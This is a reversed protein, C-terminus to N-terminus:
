SPIFQCRYQVVWHWGLEPTRGSRSPKKNSNGGSVLVSALLILLAYDFQVLLGLHSPLAGLNVEQSKM